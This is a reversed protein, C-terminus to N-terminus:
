MFWLVEVFVLLYILGLGLYFLMWGYTNETLRSQKDIGWIALAGLLIMIYLAPRGLWLIYATFVAYWAISWMYVGRMGYTSAITKISFMRDAEVDPVDKLHQFALAWLFPAVALVFAEAHGGYVSYTALFPVFGRAMSVWVTNAIASVRRPSLPPLSYFLSLFALLTTYTGFLPSVWFGRAVAILTLLVGLGAAEERSVLGRPIPRYPKAVRDLEYDMYQNIAQGAAQLLVLTVAVYIAIKVVEADVYGAGAVTGFFGAAAPAILTFPRLLVIYARIKEPLPLGKYGDRISM